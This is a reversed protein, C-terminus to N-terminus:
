IQLKKLNFFNLANDSLIESMDKNKVESIKQYVYKVKCPDNIKGRFPVPSLWPADTEAVIKNDPVVEIAKVIEEAKPFTIIGSFSIFCGLEIFKEAYFSNSSFCHIIIKNHPYEKIIQLLDDEANRVHLIIPLQYKMALKLHEVLFWKQQKKFSDGRYYDLGSEGIAIIKETKIWNEIKKLTEMKQNWFLNTDSPHIGIAPFINKCYKKSLEIAKESSNIDVGVCITVINQEIMENIISLLSKEDDYMNLHSHTDFIIKNKM